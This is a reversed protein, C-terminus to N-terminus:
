KNLTIKIIQALENCFAALKKIKSDCEEFERLDLEMGESLRKM